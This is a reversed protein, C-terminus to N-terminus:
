AWCARVFCGINDWLTNVFQRDLNHTHRHIMKQLSEIEIMAGSPNCLRKVMDEESANLKGNALMHQASKKINKALPGQDPLANTTRYHQDSLEILARALMTAALPFKSLDLARLEAVLTQEKPYGTSPIAIGPARTGFVKKRDAASTAPTAPTRPPPNPTAPAPSPPSAAEGTGHSAPTPNALPSSGAPPATADVPTPATTLTPPQIGASARVEEIYQRAQDPTFVENVSKGGGFDSVVKTTMQRVTANPLNLKLDDNGNVDFGLLRLNDVTFFRQLTSIPFEDDVFIGQGEAWLAYQGPRKYEAPHEHNLLYLTRLYASWGMQGAGGMEGQHRSLVENIMAQENSTVTLDVRSPFNKHTAAIKTIRPILDPEPCTEPKNLLKLATTRRNGDKVTFTGDGNPSALIPMTTLGDKAISECIALFQERKRLIRRMCDNQDAGARIRANHVDLMIDEVAVDAVVRFDSRAM